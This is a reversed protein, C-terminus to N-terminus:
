AYISSSCIHTCFFQTCEAFSGTGIHLLPCFNCLLRYINRTSLHVAEFFFDLRQVLCLQLSYHHFHYLSHRRWTMLNMRPHVIMQLQQHKNEHSFIRGAKTNFVTMEYKRYDMYMSYSQNQKASENHIYKNQFFTLYYYYYKEEPKAKGLDPRPPSTTM